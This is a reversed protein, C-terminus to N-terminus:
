VAEASKSFSRPLFRPDSEIGRSTADLAVKVLRERKTVLKQLATARAAESDFKEYSQCYSIKRDFLDIEQHVEKLDYKSAPKVQM